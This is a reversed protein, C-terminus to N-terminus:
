FEAAQEANARAELVREEAARADDRRGKITQGNSLRWQDPEFMYPYDVGPEPYISGTEAIQKEQVPTTSEIGSGGQRIMELVQDPSFEADVFALALGRMMEAAKDEREAAKIEDASPPKWFILKDNGNGENEQYFERTLDYDERENKPYLPEATMPNMSWQRHEGRALAKYEDTQRLEDYDPCEARLVALKKKGAKDLLPIARSRKSVERYYPRRDPTLGLLEWDPDPILTINLKKAMSLTARRGM